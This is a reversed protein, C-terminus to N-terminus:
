DTELSIESITPTMETHDVRTGDYELEVTYYHHNGLSTFGDSANDVRYSNLIYFEDEGDRLDLEFLTDGFGSSRVACWMHGTDRDYELTQIGGFSVSGLGVYLTREARVAELKEAQQMMEDYDYQMIIQKDLLSWQEANDETNWVGFSVYVKLDEPNEYDPAVTIGDIIVSVQGYEEMYKERLNDMDSLRTYIRDQLDDANLILVYCEGASPGKTRAVFVRNDYYDIGAYRNGDSDRYDDLTGSSSQCIISNGYSYFVRDMTDTDWEIGQFPRKCSWTPGTLSNVTILSEDVPDLGPFFCEYVETQDDPIKSEDVPLVDADEFEDATTSVDVVTSGPPHLFDIINKVAFGGVSLFILLFVSAFVFLIKKKISGGGPKTRDQMKEEAQTFVDPLHQRCGCRNCNAVFGQLPLENRDPWYFLTAKVVNFTHGCHSCTVRINKALRQEQPAAFIHTDNGRTRDNM